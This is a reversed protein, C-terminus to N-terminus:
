RTYGAPHRVEVDPALSKVEIRHFGKNPHTSLYTLAIQRGLAADIDALFRDFSVPAYSGQFFAHGGTDNSLRQLASQAGGVLVASGNATASVSPSYISYIAVSRRQAETIARHLDLSDVISTSDQGRSIDLGDSIVLMARRGLPQSEFRKLGERVQIYPDLTAASALGYPVRLSRAAKNLDTTFRQRVDLSGGRIYGVLVRAGPPLHRIFEAITKIENSVSSVLDDQILVAFSLPTTALSRISIPPQEDGDERVILDVLQVEQQPNSQRVRVTVPITVPKELARGPRRVSISGGTDQPLSLSTSLLIISVGLATVTWRKHSKRIRSM